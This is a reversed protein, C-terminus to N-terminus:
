PMFSGARFAQSNTKIREAKSSVDNTKTQKAELAEIKGTLHAIQDNIALREETPFRRIDVVNTPKFAWGFAQLWPVVPLLGFWGMLQIAEADPHKRAIAIRGPLGGIFAILFLSAIALVFFTLFTLYDWLDLQIGFM